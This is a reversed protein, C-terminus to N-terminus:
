QIEIKKPSEPKEEIKKPIKVVLVGDAYTAKIAEYNVDDPLLFSRKFSSYEFEKRVVSEKDEEFDVKKESSIELVNKNVKLQFDSKTLGPAALEIDYETDTELVNVAPVNMFSKDGFFDSYSASVLDNFFRPFVSSRKIIPLM